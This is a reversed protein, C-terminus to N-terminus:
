KHSMGVIDVAVPYIYSVTLYVAHDFQKLIALYLDIKM